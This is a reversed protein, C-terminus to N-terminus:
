DEETNALYRLIVEVFEKPDEVQPLQTAHSFAGPITLSSVRGTTRTGARRILHRWRPRADHLILVPVQAKALFWSAPVWTHILQTTKLTVLRSKDLSASLACARRYTAVRTNYEADASGFAISGLGRRLLCEAPWRVLENTYLWPRAAIARRLDTPHVANITILARVREPQCTALVWAIVGGAEHGVIIAESHGLARITGSIDGVAHRIEYGSPPKDSLGYGRLSVACAHYGAKALLPLVHQYEFWGGRSGHLLLVLPASPNGCTVAHLRLGRTHVYTHEYPGPTALESPSVM